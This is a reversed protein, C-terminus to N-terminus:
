KTIFYTACITSLFLVAMRISRFKKCIEHHREMKLIRKEIAEDPFRFSQESEMYVPLKLVKKLGDTIVAQFILYLIFFAVGSTAVIGASVRSVGYFIAISAIAMLIFFIQNESDNTPYSKEYEERRIEYERYNELNKNDYKQDTCLKPSCMENLYATIISMAAVLAYAIVIKM